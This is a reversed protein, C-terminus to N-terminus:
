AQVGGRKIWDLCFSVIAWEGRPLLKQLEKPTFGLVKMLVQFHNVAKTIEAKERPSLELKDGKKVQGSFGKLVKEINLLVERLVGLQTKQRRHLELFQDIIFRIKRGRGQVKKDHVKMSDLFSLYKPALCLTFNRAKLYDEVKPRGPARTVIKARNAQTPSLYKEIVEEARVPVKEKVGNKLIKKLVDMSRASDSM